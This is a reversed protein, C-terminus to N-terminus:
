VYRHGPQMAIAVQGFPDDTIIPPLANVDRIFLTYADSAPGMLLAEYLQALTGTDGLRVMTQAVTQLTVGRHILYSIFAMGCGTSDPNQDTPDVTSVYDKAGNAQWSPATAFDSLANGSAEMACWRSLAEGTSLGCLQNRMACESLEAELLASCRASNGYSVCVEIDGGTQWDCGMHDAGGTGDTAGGLALLLVSVPATQTAGFLADNLTAVRDADAILDVANKQADANTALSADLYVSVLGSPSTGVLADNGSFTPWAIGSSPVPSPTPAPAPQPQTSGIADLDAQLAAAIVLLEAVLESLMTALVSINNIQSQVDDLPSPASDKVRLSPHKLRLSM